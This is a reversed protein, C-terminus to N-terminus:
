RTDLQRWDTTLERTRLGKNGGYPVRKGLSRGGWRCGLRHLNCRARADARVQGSTICWLPRYHILVPTGLQSSFSLYIAQVVTTEKMVQFAPTRSEEPHEQVDRHISIRCSPEHKSQFGLVGRLHTLGDTRGTCVLGRPLSEEVIITCQTHNPPSPGGLRTTRNRGDHTPEQEEGYVPSVEPKPALHSDHVCRRVSSLEQRRWRKM